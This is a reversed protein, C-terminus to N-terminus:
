LDKLYAYGGMLQMQRIIHNRKWIVVGSPQNILYYRPNPLVAAVTAAEYINLARADKQYYRKAAAQVGFTQPGTEAINLYVELIRKKGWVLEIAFTLPIELAKRLYRSIGKGQWLFVNKAVQQSITSAGRKTKRTKNEEVAQQIAKWDFGSHQPFRQDESAVVALRMHESMEEFSVWDYYISADKGEQYAEISRGLMTLTFPVPLFKLAFIWVILLIFLSLSLRWFWQWIWLFWTRKKNVM